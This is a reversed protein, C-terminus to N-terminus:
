ILYFLSVMISTGLLFGSYVQTPTHANLKLRATGVIGIVLLILFLISTLNYHHSIAFGLFVGFMGGWATMHLSIKTIYNIILSILILTTAGVMFLAMLGTLSTQKLIFYTGYFAAAIIIMPLIREQQSRMELSKIKGAKLLIFIVISPLVFTTIFVFVVIIYRYKLPLVLISHIQLNMMLLIAYTPVLLPHFVISIIKAFRLNM